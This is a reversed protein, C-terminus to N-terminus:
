AALMGPMDPRAPGDQSLEEEHEEFTKDGDIVDGRQCLAFFERESMLGSQVAQMYAVFQQPSLGFPNFERNIEFHVEGSAGAWDAATALAWTFADSVALVISAMVSNEGSTELTAETATKERQTNEIVMRAGLVAMQKEARDLQKELTSLGTGKFEIYEGRAEPHPTTIAASGGIKIASGDAMDVGALFLMPLATYHAGHRYDSNIQYHAINKDALDIMPPEMVEFTMGNQTVFRFPIMAMKRGNRVPYIPGEVLEDTGDDKARFVRQRYWGDDDLDLVRYLTEQKEEFEDVAKCREEKLVVMGLVTRNGFKTTRWNIVSPASYTKVYPRLGKDEADRLSIATVNEPLQAYDVLLGIRGYELVDEVADKAMSFLTTGALDIDRAMPEIAGPMVLDPDKNFALGALASVTRYFANFFDSRKVRALYETEEEAILKPLYRDRAAHIARQGKELHECQEWLPLMHKYEPHQTRVGAM